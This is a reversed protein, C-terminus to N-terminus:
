ESREYIAHSYLRWECARRNVLGPMIKGQSRKWAKWAQELSAYQTVAQPDNILKAASSRKFAESGINFVLMLLADYQHQKLSVNITQKIARERSAIDTMLLEIAMQPSIGNKFKNWEHILILHGYGITAGFGWRSIQKGTQDDYPQLRVSELDQLLVIGPGSPYLHDNIM